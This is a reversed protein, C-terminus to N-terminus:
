KASKTPEFFPKKGNPRINNNNNIGNMNSKVSKERARESEKNSRPKNCTMLMSLQRIYALRISLFWINHALHHWFALFLCKNRGLNSRREHFSRYCKKECESKDNRISAENHICLTENFGYECTDRMGFVGLRCSATAIM